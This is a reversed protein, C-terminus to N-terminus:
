MSSYTPQNTLSFYDNKYIGKKANCHKLTRIFNHYDVKAQRTTDKMTNCGSVICLTLLITITKM